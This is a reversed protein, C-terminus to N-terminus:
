NLPNWEVVKSYFIPVMKFIMFKKKIFEKLDQRSVLNLDKGDMSQM